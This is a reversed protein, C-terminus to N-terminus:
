EAARHVLQTIGTTRGRGRPVGDDPMAGRREEDSAWCGTGAPAPDPSPHAQTTGAAGTPKRAIVWLFTVSGEPERMEVIEDLELTFGAARLLARNPDADHSCFFM